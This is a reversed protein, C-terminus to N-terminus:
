NNYAVLKSIKAKGKFISAPLEITLITALTAYNSEDLNSTVPHTDTVQVSMRDSMCCVNYFLEGRM